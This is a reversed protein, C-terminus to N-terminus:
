SAGFNVHKFTLFYPQVGVVYRGWVLFFVLVVCGCSVMAKM